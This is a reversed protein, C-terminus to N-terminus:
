RGGGACACACACGACACACGGGVCGSGGGKTLSEGLESLFERTFRDAGSLDLRKVPLAVRDAVASVAKETSNRMGDFWDVHRAYPRTHFWAPRYFWGRDREEQMRDDYDDAVTLWNLHRDAIRDRSEDDAATSVRDWAHESVRRYYDKTAEPDFGELKYRVLGVLRKLPESFDKRVVEAPPESLVDLFGVEHPDLGVQRGDGLTVLNPAPRTGVPELNLPDPQILKVVGKRLLDTIVMNLARDLPLELLVAVEAASLGRLVRGREVRAVAPMYKPRFGHRFVYLIVAMGPIVAWLALHGAPSKWMVLLFVAVCVVFVSCGTGRTISFFLAAFLCLLLAGSIQQAEKSRDWWRLFDRVISSAVMRKMASRPFSCGFM